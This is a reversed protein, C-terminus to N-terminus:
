PTVPTVAVADRAIIRTAAKNFLRGDRAQLKGREILEARIIGWRRTTMGVGLINAIWPGDDPCSGGGDYILDLVLGYAAKVEFTMGGTGGIFKAPNRKYWDLKSRTSM